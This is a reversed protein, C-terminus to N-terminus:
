FLVAQDDLHVVTTLHVTIYLECVTQGRGAWSEKLHINRRQLASRFEITVTSTSTELFAHCFNTMEPSTAWISLWLLRCGAINRCICDELQLRLAAQKKVVWFLALTWLLDSRGINVSLVTSVTKLHLIRTNQPINEWFHNSMKLYLKSHGLEHMWRRNEVTPLLVTDVIKRYARRKKLIWYGWPIRVYKVISLCHKYFGTLCFTSTLAVLTFHGGWTSLTRM